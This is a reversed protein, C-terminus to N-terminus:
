PGSQDSVTKVLDLQAKLPDPRGATAAVGSVAFELLADQGADYIPWAPRGAGNPDGTKAFPWGTHTRSNRSRNTTIPSRVATARVSRISSM